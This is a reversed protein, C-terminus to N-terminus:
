NALEPVRAYIAETLEKKREWLSLYWEIRRPTQYKQLRNKSVWERAKLAYKYPVSPDDSWSDLVDFLERPEDIIIGNYGSNISNAYVTNSAICAVMHGSAEVFKLDSKMSNFKTPRLPMLAIHCKSLVNKYTEYGCTPTFHKQDTELSDYFLKDHIVEFEFKSPDKTILKNIQKIWAEWDKERNLAGYFLKLPKTTSSIDWKNTDLPPLTELCNEFPMVEPNYKHMMEALPMTSVQVAHMAEFEIYKNKAIGSFHDPDDDFESILIYGADIIQKVQRLSEPYRLAQRQFIIIRPVNDNFKKLSISESSLELKVGAESAISRLPQIMRVENMGAQPRLMLGSIILPKVEKISGTIVYQLPSCNSMFSNPDIRFEKLAPAISKVFEQAKEKKFIRPKIDIVRLGANNFLEKLSERTFWRLHTRDFLGQDEQPWKGSLLNMIASWHQVNPVCALVVGSENLWQIHQKLIEDPNILHELVDGYVLADIDGASNPTFNQNTEVDFNWVKDLRTKAINAPEEMLEIGMYNADPNITKYARGLAGSGCGIELINRAKVPIRWLLDPNIQDYYDAKDHM